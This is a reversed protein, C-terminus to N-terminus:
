VGNQTGGAITASTISYQWGIREVIMMAPMPPWEALLARVRPEVADALSGPPGRERKPPEDSRLAM